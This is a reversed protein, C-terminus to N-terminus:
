HLKIMLAQKLNVRGQQTNFYTGVQYQAPHPSILDKLPSSAM